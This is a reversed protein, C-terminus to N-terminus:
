IGAQLYSGSMRRAKAPPNSNNMQHYNNACEITDLPSMIVLDLKRTSMVQRQLFPRSRIGIVMQSASKSYSM